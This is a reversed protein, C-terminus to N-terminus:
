SCDNNIYNMQDYLKPLFFFFRACNVVCACHVTGSVACFPSGFVVSAKFRTDLLQVQTSPYKYAEQSASRSGSWDRVFVTTEASRTAARLTKKKRYTTKQGRAILNGTREESRLSNHGISRNHDAATALPAMPTTFM